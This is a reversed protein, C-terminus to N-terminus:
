ILLFYKQFSNALFIHGFCAVLYCIGNIENMNEENTSCALAIEMLEISFQTLASNSHNIGHCDWISCNKSPFGCAGWYSSSAFTHAASAFLIFLTLRFYWSYNINNANLKEPNPCSRPRQLKLWLCHTRKNLQSKTKTRKKTWKM